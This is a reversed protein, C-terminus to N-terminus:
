QTLKTIHNALKTKVAVDLRNLGMIVDDGLEKLELNAVVSHSLDLTNIM